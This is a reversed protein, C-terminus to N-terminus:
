EQNGFSEWLEGRETDDTGPDKYEQETLGSADSAESAQSVNRKGRRANSAYSTRILTSPVNEMTFEAESVSPQVEDLSSRPSAYPASTPASASSSVSAKRSSPQKENAILTSPGRDSARKAASLKRLEDLLTPGHTLLDELFRSPHKDHQISLSWFIPRSICMCLSNALNSVFNGEKTTLSILRHLHTILASLTALNVRRLQSLLNQLLRVRYVEDNGHNAYISRVLEFASSPIISDPLELLFLKLAGVVVTPSYQVLIDKSVNPAHNLAERLQHVSSLPSNVLWLKQRVKDSPLTPYLQDLFSLITSVVIPVRKKDRHCLFELDIGFVQDKIDNYYDEYVEVHPLFPGTASSELIYRIDSEPQIIEQYVIIQDALLKMSPLFNSIITSMDMFTNKFFQVRETECKQLFQLHDVINEELLTRCKDLDYVAEKYTINADLAERKVRQLPSEMAYQKRYQIYDSLYEGLFPLSKANEILADHSDLGAIQFAKEKWQYHFNTSNVFTGGVGIQGIQRLFGQMILDQGFAEAAVLTPVPLNEQLWSVIVNGSCTNQYTGLIPVRKDQLPLEELIQAMVKQLEDPKFEMFGLQVPENQESLESKEYLETSGSSFQNNSTKIDSSKEQEEEERKAEEELDELDRCRNYYTSKSKRMYHYKKEHEKVHNTLVYQSTQLRQVHDVTMKSLPRLVLSHLDNSIRVHQKGQNEIESRLGEFAKNSSTCDETAEENNGNKMCEKTIEQLREGFDENAQKYLKILTKIQENEQTGASLREFLTNIGTAYDKSWFGNSFSSITAM